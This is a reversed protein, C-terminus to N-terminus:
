NTKLLFKSILENCKEAAEMQVFHGAGSILEYTCDPILASAKKAIGETTEMPHVMKNPIMADEKGFIVLVPVRIESLFVGIQEDLMAHINARVMKSWHLGNHLPFYSKLDSIIKSSQQQSNKYFSNQIATVLSSEDSVLFSGLEMMQKMWAKELSSFQEFGSPALLILKECMSPYRLSFIMAIHGGMSHGVLIAKEIHLEKLMLQACESYFFLSYPRETSKSSLGNGPLDISICRFDKKLEETNKSWVGHYNALGHIFVLVTESSGEDTYAIEIGHGISVSEMTKM